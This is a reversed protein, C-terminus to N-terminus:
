SKLGIAIPGEDKDDWSSEMTKDALAATINAKAAATDPSIRQERDRDMPDDLLGIAALPIEYGTQQFAFVLDRSDFDGDCDAM